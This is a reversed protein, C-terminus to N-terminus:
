RCKFYERDKHMSCASEYAWVMHIVRYVSINAGTDRKRTVCVDNM